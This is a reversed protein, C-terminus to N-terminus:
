SWREGLLYLLVGVGARLKSSLTVSSHLVGDSLITLASILILFRIDVLSGKGYELRM